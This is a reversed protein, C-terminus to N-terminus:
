EKKEAPVNGGMGLADLVRRVLPCRFPDAEVAPDTTECMYPKDDCYVRFRNDMGLGVMNRKTCYEVLGCKVARAIDAASWGPGDPRDVILELVGIRGRQSAVQNGIDCIAVTQKEVVAALQKLTQMVPKESM